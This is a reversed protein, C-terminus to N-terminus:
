IDMVYIDLNNEVWTKSLDAITLHWSLKSLVYRSYILVNHKPHLPLKDMTKMMEETNDLLIQKHSKNDMAYNFFRGLYEVDQDRPVPPIYENNVFLKPQTQVTNSGRKTIGFTKCKDVRIIMDSWTCWRTFSANLLIQTEYEQGTIVSADDAFQYWHRPSFYKSFKYVLNSMDQQKIHQIFTNIILNFLLPSISDGQLVGRGFHIVGYHVRISICMYFLKIPYLHKIIERIEPPMYHHSLVDTILSRHVEGFANKLDLLTIVISRQKARAQNILYPMHYTHEFAESM